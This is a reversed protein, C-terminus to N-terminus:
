GSDTGLVLSDMAARVTRRDRQLASQGGKKEKKVNVGGGGKKPDCTESLEKNERVGEDGCDRCSGELCVLREKRSCYVEEFDHKDDGIGKLKEKYFERQQEDDNLEGRVAEYKMEDEPGEEKGPTNLMLGVNGTHNGFTAKMLNDLHFRAKSLALSVNCGDGVKKGEFVFSSEVLWRLWRVEKTTNRDEGRMRFPGDRPGRHGVPYCTAKLDSIRGEDKIVTLTSNQLATDLHDCIVCTGETSGDSNPVCVAHETKTRHCDEPPGGPCVPVRKGLYCFITSPALAQPLLPRSPELVKQVYFSYELPTFRIWPGKERFAFIHAHFYSLSPAANCPDGEAKAKRTALWEGTERLAATLASPDDTPFTATPATSLLIFFSVTLLLLPSLSLLSWLLM